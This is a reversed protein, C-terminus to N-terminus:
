RSARSPHRLRSRVHRVLADLESNKGFYTCNSPLSRGGRELDARELITYLIVPVGRLREDDLLLQACRLGARFYGGEVVDPPPVPQNPSPKTWQLMVDMVVLDPRDTRFAPLAGRFESETRLTRISVAGFECELHEALPEAQLHDDEVVVISTM